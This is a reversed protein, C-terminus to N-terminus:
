RYIYIELCWSLELNQPLYTYKHQKVSFLIKHRKINESFIERLKSIHMHLDENKNACIYMLVNFEGLTKTAWVINDNMESYGKLEEMDKEKMNLMRFLVVYMDYNMSSYNVDPVFKVITGNEQMKNIRYIVTDPKSEVKQSLEVNTISANESLERLIKFDLEDHKINEDSKKQEKGSIEFDRIQEPIAGQKIQEIIAVLEYDQLYDSCMDVIDCFIKDAEQIDRAVYALNFDYSGNLKLVSRIHPNKEFKAVLEKEVKESPNKLQLFLHYSDYGFKSIDIIVMTKNIVGKSYLEKIRYGATEKPLGVLKAIKSVPMKANTSLVQLIKKDKLDLVIKKSNETSEM